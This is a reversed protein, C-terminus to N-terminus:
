TALRSELTSSQINSLSRSEKLIDGTAKTALSTCQVSSKVVASEETKGLMKV